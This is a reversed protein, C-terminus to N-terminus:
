NSLENHVYDELQQNFRNNGTSAKLLSETNVFSLSGSELLTVFGANAAQWKADINGNRAYALLIHSKDPSTLSRSRERIEALEAELKPFSFANFEDEQRVLYRAYTFM